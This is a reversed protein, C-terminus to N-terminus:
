RTRRPRFRIVNPPLEPEAAGHVDTLLEVTLELQDLLTLRRVASAVDPQTWIVHQMCALQEWAERAPLM